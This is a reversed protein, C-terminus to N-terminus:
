QAPGIRYLLQELSKWNEPIYSLLETKPGQEHTAPSIRNEDDLFPFSTLIFSSFTGYERNQLKSSGRLVAARM